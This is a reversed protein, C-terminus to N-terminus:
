LGPHGPSIWGHRDLRIFAGYADLAAEKMLESLTPHPFYHAYHADIRRRDDGPENTAVRSRIM